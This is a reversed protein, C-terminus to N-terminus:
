KKQDLVEGVKRLLESPSLPKCIFHLDDEIIGHKSIVETAYGSIFIAKIDPKLRLIEEYAKKGNKKPMIVDFILLQIKDKNERFKRVADEGDVAEIVKYGSQILMEKSLARVQEDDEAILVTETGGKIPIQAKIEESKEKPLEVLPIYIRFTTGQNPKSFVEIYGNHQKVIGYVMSLGLGTGKGVEKTTYFPDFIKQQTEEDIGIGTDSVSLLAYRGPREPTRGKFFEQNLDVSETAITLVGGNPMADRANTVLNILVQDIQGADAMVTLSEDTLDVKIEIDERILRSLLKKLNNIIENLNIPKLTILQKRSFALLSRTLTVARESASLIQEVDQKLSVNDDVKLLLFNAYGIIATLINNFDHAIGGALTGIAEMKQAHRLQEELRKKEEERKKLSEAMNNFAQALRGVEDETEVLVKEVEGGRGLTQAAKTLRNLPRTIKKAWYYATGCGFVLFFLGLFIDKVLVGNISKNLEKKDIIVQVFGIIRNKKVIAEGLILSEETPYSAGVMVPSWLEITNEHEVHYLFPFEKLHKFIEKRKNEEEQVSKRRRKKKLEKEKRLLEKELSYVSLRLVNELHFIGGVAQELLEKDETFVGLRLGYALIGALLKADKLLANKLLKSQQYIFFITCTVFIIILFAAILTFLKGSFSKRLSDLFKVKM